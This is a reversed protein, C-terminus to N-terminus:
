EWENPQGELIGISECIESIISDLLIAQGTTARGWIYLGFIEETMENKQKLKHHLYNSVSYFEYAEVHYPDINENNCLEEATSYTLEEGKKEYQNTETNLEWGNDYAATKFDYCYSVNFLEEEYEGKDDSQILHSILLSTNLFINRQIFLEKITQNKASDWLLRNYSGDKNLFQLQKETVTQLNKM